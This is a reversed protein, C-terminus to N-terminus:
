RARRHTQLWGPRRGNGAARFSDVAKASDNRATSHRATLSFDERNPPARDLLRVALLRPITSRKIGFLSCHAKHRLPRALAATAQRRSGCGGTFARLHPAISASPLALGARAAATEIIKAVNSRTMPGGRETTFVFASEPQQRRKLERLARLEDGQVPHV